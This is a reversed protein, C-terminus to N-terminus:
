DAEFVAGVEETEGVFRLQRVVDRPIVRDFAIPEATSTEGVVHERADWLSRGLVREAEEQSIVQKVDLRGGLLLDGSRVAIVYIADGSSVGRTSFQNSAAHDLIGGVSEQEADWTANKWYHTFARPM